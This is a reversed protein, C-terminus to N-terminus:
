YGPINYCNTCKGGRASIRLIAISGQSHIKYTRLKVVRKEPITNRSVNDLIWRDVVYVVWDIFIRLKKM